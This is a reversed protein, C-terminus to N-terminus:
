VSHLIMAENFRQISIIELLYVLSSEFGWCFRLSLGKKKPGVGSWHCIGLLLRSRFLDTLHRTRLSQLRLIKWLVVFWSWFLPLRLGICLFPCIVWFSWVNKTVTKIQGGLTPTIKGKILSVWVKSWLHCIQTTTPALSREWTVRAKSGFKDFKGQHNTLM